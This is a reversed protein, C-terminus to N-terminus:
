RCHGQWSCAEEEWGYNPVAVARKMEHLPSGAFSAKVVNAYVTLVRKRKEKRKEEGTANKKV